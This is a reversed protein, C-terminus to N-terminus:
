ADTGGLSARLELEGQEQTGSIGPMGLGLSDLRLANLVENPDKQKNAGGSSSSFSNGRSQAEMSVRSARDKDIQDM